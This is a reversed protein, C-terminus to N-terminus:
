EEASPDRPKFHDKKNRWKYDCYPESDYYGFEACDDCSKERKLKDRKKEAKALRDALEKM